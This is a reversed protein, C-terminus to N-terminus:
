DMKIPPYNLLLTFGAEQLLKNLGAVDKEYFENVQRVFGELRARAKEYKVQAPQTVPEYGASTLGSVASNVQSMLGSSRDAMGQRPPTPNLADNLDKLRKEVEDLKKMVEMMKQNRQGRSFERITQLARQTQQLRQNVQQLTRSLKQAEKAKEYNAKLVALDVKLRPDPKVEFNQSVEQ